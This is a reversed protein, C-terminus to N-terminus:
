SFLVQLDEVSLQNMFTEGPKIVEDLLNQKRAQLEQIKEEISGGTILRIVQVVETQGIRHARDTAQNEVAPNWWPDVHIVTDASALNLGTGGARLSILFLQGEGANFREVQELRALSSVSGDIYFLQRGLEEQQERILALMSTFQSFILVRHGSSVLQDLLEGLMEMKGSGGEYDHLFLSPHCAVQRLRTLLSLIQLRAEGSRRDEWTGMAEVQSRARSLQAAYIRAQEETMDCHYTTTIKDPLEKLVDKKLRRLIFPAILFRLNEAAEQDQENLIPSAYDEQFEQMSFLYGPMLFDFLSWLETLNNELPTGSLAFRHKAKIKKIARATQTRPNKIYQAEDLFCSSFEQETLRDLDQRALTYSTIVLDSGAIGDLQEQRQAPSGSIVRVRLDPTFQRAEREWNYVLSTPAIILAPESEDKHALIHVLAQLTKGLGMEDALIGGLQYRSLTELWRVGREQYPRLETNVGEPLDFAVSDPNQLDEALRVFGDSLQISPTKGEESVNQLWSSIALSRYRNLQMGHESWAAGWDDMQALLELDDEAAEDLDFFQGSRVRVFRRKERYAALVDQLDESSFDKGLGAIALDLFSQDESLSLSAGIKPVRTPRMNLFRTTAFITWKDQLDPLGSSIFNLIRDDGHLYYRQPLADGPVSVLAQSAPETEAESLDAMSFLGKTTPKRKKRVPPAPRFGFGQITNHFHNERKIERIILAKEANTGEASNQGEPHPDIRLDGYVFNAALTVDRGDRDLWAEIALEENRIEYQREFGPGALLMGAESFPRYILNLLDALEKEEIYIAQGPQDALALLLKSSLHAYADPFIWVTDRFYIIHGDGSIISVDEGSDAARTQALRKGAPKATQGARVQRGIRRLKLPVYESEDDTEPNGVVTLFCSGAQWLEAETPITDETIDEHEETPTLKFRIPPIAKRVPLPIDESGTRTSQLLAFGEPAEAAWELLETLRAMPLLVTNQRFYPNGTGNEASATVHMYYFDTLWDFFRQDDAALRQRVPMFTFQKGFNIEHGSQAAEILEPINKVVYLREQGIRLKLMAHRSRQGPLTLIVELRIRGEGSADTEIQRAESRTEAAQLQRILQQSDRRLKVQERKQDLLSLRKAEAASADAASPVERSPDDPKIRFTQGRQHDDGSDPLAAAAEAPLAPAASPVDAGAPAKIGDASIEIRRADLLAAVIHKCFGWYSKYAKCTCSARRLRGDATIGLVIDNSSGSPSYVRAEYTDTAGDYHRGRVVDQEWYERGEVYVKANTALEKIEKDSLQLQM